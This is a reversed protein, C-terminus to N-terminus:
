KGFVQIKKKTYKDLIDERITIGWGAGTMLSAKGATGFVVDEKSVDEALLYTSYSGEIFRLAQLHAAIHRGAASLIATEGVQCGLQIGIGAIEAFEAIALTSYVGGCKSVRLNFYDVANSKALVRADDITVISEDVMVPIISAGRLKALEVPDGRPIPQEICAINYKELLALFEIATDLDFAANADLRISVSDGVITRVLAVLEVDDISSVKMKIANFGIDSCRRAVEAVKERSGASIVGSYKVETVAPPLLESASLDRSRLFCDIVALEVACKSANWVIGGDTVPKSLIYNIEALLCSVDIEDFDFDVFLPLLDNQIYEISSEGTEGTVYPRSVGEGFGSVGSDTTVKVVISDSHDRSSLSHSFSEVFPINLAYVYASIIKM